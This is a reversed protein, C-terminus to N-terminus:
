DDDVDNRMGDVKKEDNSVREGDGDGDNVVDEMADDDGIVDGVVDRSRDDVNDMSMLGDIVDGIDSVGEGDWDDPVCVSEGVALM